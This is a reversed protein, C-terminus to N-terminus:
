QWSIGPHKKRSPVPLVDFPIVAPTCVGFNLISSLAMSVPMPIIAISPAVASHIHLNASTRIHSHSHASKCIHPHAFSFTRIQPHASTRILISKDRVHPIRLPHASTRIIHAFPRCFGAAHLRFGAAERWGCM